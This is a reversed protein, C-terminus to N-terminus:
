LPYAPFGCGKTAHFYRDQYFDFWVKTAHTYKFLDMNETMDTMAELEKAEQIIRSMDPVTNSKKAQAILRGLNMSLSDVKDWILNKEPFQYAEPDKGSLGGQLFNTVNNLNVHFQDLDYLPGKRHAMKGVDKPDVKSSAEWDAIYFDPPSPKEKDSDWGPFHMFINGFHLDGHYLIATKCPEKPVYGPPAGYKFETVDETFPLSYVWQLTGLVQHIMRAVVSVPPAYYSEASMGWQNCAGGNYIPWFTVKYFMNGTKSTPDQVYQFGLDEILLCALDNQPKETEKRQHLERIVRLEKMPKPNGDSHFIDVKHEPLMSCKAVITRGNERSAERCLFAVDNMGDGLEKVVKYHRRKFAYTRPCQAKTQSKDM